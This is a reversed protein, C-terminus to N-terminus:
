ENLTYGAGMVQSDTVPQDALAERPDVRFWAMAGLMAIAGFLCLAWAIVDREDRYNSKM